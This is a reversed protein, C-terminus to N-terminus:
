LAVLHVAVKASERRSCRCSQELERHSSTKSRSSSLKAQNLKGAADSAISLGAILFPPASNRSEPMCRWGEPLANWPATGQTRVTEQMVAGGACEQRHSSRSLAGGSM